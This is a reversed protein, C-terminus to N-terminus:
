ASPKDDLVQMANDAQKCGVVQLRSARLAEIQKEIEELRGTAQGLIAVNIQTTAPMLDHQELAMQGLVKAGIAASTGQAKKVTKRAQNIYLESVGLALNGLRKRAVSLDDPNRELMRRVTQDPIGTARTVGRYSGSQSYADKVIELVKPQKKELPTRGVPKHKRKPPCQPANVPTNQLVEGTDLRQKFETPSVM